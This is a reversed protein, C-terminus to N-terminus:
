ASAILGKARLLALVANIARANDSATGDSDPISAGASALRGLATKETSAPLLSRIIGLATNVGQRPAQNLAIDQIQLPEAM